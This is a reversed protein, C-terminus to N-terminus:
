SEPQVLVEKTLTRLEEINEVEILLMDVQTLPEPKIPENPDGSPTVLPLKSANTLIIHGDCLNDPAAALIGLFTEGQTRVSVVRGISKNYYRLAVSPYWDRGFFRNMLTGFWEAQRLKGWANAFVTSWLCASIFFYTAGSTMVPAWDISTEKTREKLVQRIASITTDREIGFPFFCPLASAVVWILVSAFVVELSTAFQSRQERLLHHNKVQVFLYGPVLLVIYFGLQLPNDM